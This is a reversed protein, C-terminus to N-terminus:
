RSLAENRGDKTVPCNADQPRSRQIQGLRSLFMWGSEFRCPSVSRLGDFLTWRRSGSPETAM